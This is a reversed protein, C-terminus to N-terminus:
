VIGSWSDLMAQQKFSPAQWEIKKDNAPGVFEEFFKV